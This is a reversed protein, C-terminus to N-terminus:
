IEWPLKRRTRSDEKPLEALEQYKPNLSNFGRDEVQSRFQSPGSQQTSFNDQRIGSNMRSSAQQMSTYSRTTTQPLSSQPSSSYSSSMVFGSNTTDRKPIVVEQPAEQVDGSQQLSSSIVRGTSGNSVFEQTNEDLEKELKSEEENVEKVIKVKSQIVKVKKIEEPKVMLLQLM